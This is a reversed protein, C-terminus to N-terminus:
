STVSDRRADRGTKVYYWTTNSSLGALLVWVVGLWSGQMFSVVAAAVALVCVILAYVGLRPM